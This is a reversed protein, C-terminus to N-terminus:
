ENYTKASSKQWPLTWIETNDISHCNPSSAGGEGGGLFFPLTMDNIFNEFFIILSKIYITSCEHNKNINELTWKYQM